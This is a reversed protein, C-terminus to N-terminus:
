PKSSVKSGQKASPRTCGGSKAAARRGSVSRTETVLLPLGAAPLDLLRRERGKGGKRRTEVTGGLVAEVM